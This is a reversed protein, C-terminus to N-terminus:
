KGYRSLNGRGGEGGPGRTEDNEEPALFAPAKKKEIKEPKRREFFAALFGVAWFNLQSGCVYHPSPPSPPSQPSQPSQTMGWVNEETPSDYLLEVIVGGGERKGKGWVTRTAGDDCAKHTGVSAM